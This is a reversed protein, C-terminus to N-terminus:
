GNALYALLFSTNWSGMELHSSNTEPLATLVQFVPTPESSNEKQPEAAKATVKLSPLGLFVGQFKLRCERFSVATREQFYALFPGGFLFKM